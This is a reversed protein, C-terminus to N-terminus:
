SSLFLVFIIILYIVLEISECFFQLDDLGVAGNRELLEFLDLFLLM